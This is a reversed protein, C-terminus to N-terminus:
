GHCYGSGADDRGRRDATREWGIKELPSRSFFIFFFFFFLRSPEARMGHCSEEATAMDKSVHKARPSWRFWQVRFGEFGEFGKLSLTGGTIYKSVRREPNWGM